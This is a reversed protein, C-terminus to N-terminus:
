KLKDRVIQSVLSGDIKGKNEAMVAGIVQGTQSPSTAGLQSIKSEVIKEVEKKSLEEPLYGSIIKLESEEKAAMEEQNGTNYAEISERRQKAERKLVLIIDDNNLPEKKAIEANKLASKLLRLVSVKLEDHAKYVVLFDSNIQELLTM